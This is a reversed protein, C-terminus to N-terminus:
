CRGKLLSPDAWVEEHDGAVLFRWGPPLGLKRATPPAAVPPASLPGVRPGPRGTSGLRRALYRRVADYSGQFGLGALERYLEAANRSGRGIWAGIYAAFPDLRTRTERGVNWDPCRDARLYRMICGRSLGTARAIQRLSLGEARLQRVREYRQVRDRRKAQKTRDKATPGQGSSAPAEAPPQSSVSDAAGAPQAPPAPVEKLAERVKASHRAILQEVMERLNRLLHWRDAVQRAQPAGEAAAQAYAPWRDWTIVEVGPHDKLWATLAKGDRGELIDIVRGRELSHASGSGDMM